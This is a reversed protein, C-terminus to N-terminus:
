HRGAQPGWDLRARRRRHWDMGPGQALAAVAPPPWPRTPVAAPCRRRTAACCGPRALQHGPLRHGWPRSRQPARRAPAGAMPASPPGSAPTRAPRGRRAASRPGPRTPSHQPLGFVRGGPL